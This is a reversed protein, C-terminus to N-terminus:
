SGFSIGNNLAACNSWRGNALGHASASPQRRTGKVGGEVVYRPGYGTERTRTVHHARGHERLAEALREWEEVQFGVSIFFRAKSAGYRHARNLLYDAIKQREVLLHDPNPLKM